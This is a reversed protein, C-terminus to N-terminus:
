IFLWIETMSILLEDVFAVILTSALCSASFALSYRGMNQMLPRCNEAAPAAHTNKGDFISAGTNKSAWYICPSTLNFVVIGGM